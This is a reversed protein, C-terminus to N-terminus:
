AALLTDIAQMLNGPLFPKPLFAVKSQAVWELHEDEASDFYGSIFLIPLDPNSKRVKRALEFGNMGPMRIDTVMVDPVPSRAFAELAEEACAAQVSAHNAMSVVTTVLSLLAPTDDVILITKVNRSGSDFILYGAPNIVYLERKLFGLVPGPPPKQPILPPARLGSEPAEPFISEVFNVAYGV